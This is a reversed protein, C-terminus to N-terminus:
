TKSGSDTSKENWTKQLRDIASQFRAKAKDWTEASADKVEAWADKTNAWASDVTDATGEKASQAATKANAAYDKMRQEWDAMTRGTLDRQGDLSTREPTGYEFRPLLNLEERTMVIKANGDPNALQLREVPVLVPIKGVGMLGGIGVIGHTIRGDASVVLDDIDGLSEGSATVIDRGILEKARLTGADLIAGNEVTSEAASASDVLPLAVIAISAM